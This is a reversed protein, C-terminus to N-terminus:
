ENSHHNIYHIIKSLIVFAIFLQKKYNKTLSLDIIITKNDSIFEKFLIKQESLAKSSNLFQVDSRTFEDFLSILSDTSLDKEWMQQNKLELNLSTIDLEPNRLITNKFIDMTKEDKKFILAYSDFVYELYEINDKDFPIDSRIPDITFASGLKFHLFDSEFQSGSFIKMLKSWNGSFDFIISPIKKKVLEVVIKIALDERNKAKGNTILLNELQDRLLGVPVEKELFETNITFGFCIFNELQLPSNFEAAIKTAVGKRFEDALNTLFLLGKGQFILYNLHTGEKFFFKNKLTQFLFGSLLKNNRLLEFELNSLNMKFTNKLSNINIVQQRELEHFHEIELNNVYKYAFSSITLIVRWVGARMNLWNNGDNDSGIKSLAYRTRNNIFNYCKKNFTYFSMPSSVITYGFCLKKQILARYIKSPYYFPIKSHFKFSAFNLNVIKLNLLLKSDISCFISEPYITFRFFKLDKFPEVLILEAKRVTNELSVNSLLERWWIWLFITVLILNIIIIFIFFFGLLILLISSYILISVCLLIKYLHFTQLKKSRIVPNVKPIISSNTKLVIVRLADIIDNNTLLKMNFHPFNASFNSKMVEIYENLKEVLYRLKTKNIVGNMDFFTSFFISTQFNDNLYEQHVNDEIKNKINLPAQIIQFSFPIQLENLSKIFQNLTPHVNEPIVRVQFIAMAVTKLDNKNIFFLIESNNKLFFFTLDGFPQILALNKFKKTYFRKLAFFTDHFVIFFSSIIIIGILVALLINASILYTVLTLYGTILIVSIIKIFFFRHNVDKFSPNVDWINLYSDINHSNQGDSVINKNQTKGYNDSSGHINM